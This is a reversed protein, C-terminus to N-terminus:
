PRLSQALEHGCRRSVHPRPRTAHVPRTRSTHSSHGCRERAFVPWRSPRRTPGGRAHKPLTGDEDVTWTLTLMADWGRVLSTNWRFNGGKVTFVENGNGELTLLARCPGFCSYARLLGNPGSPKVNAKIAQRVHREIYPLKPGNWDAIHTAAIGHLVDNKPTNKGHEDTM